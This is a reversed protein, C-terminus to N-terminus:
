CGFSGLSVGLACHFWTECFELLLFAVTAVLAKQFALSGDIFSSRTGLGFLGMYSQGILSRWMPVEKNGRAGQVTRVKFPKTGLSGM